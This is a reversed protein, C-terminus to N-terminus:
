IFREMRVMMRGKKTQHLVQCFRCKGLGRVSILDNEHPPHGNSTVLKANVFVVGSQVLLSARSRPIGFALAILADLRLSAVSGIQEETAISLSISDPAHQETLVETHRVRTLEACLYSAMREVCFVSATNERVILDGILSREIGLSLISGLFDRHSLNEAYRPASPRVSIVAIPFPWGPAAEGPHLASTNESPDSFSLADPVFAAMQREADSYGGSIRLQIGHEKWRIGRLANQQNLDLFDSFLVIGRAYARDALETIRKQFQEIERM